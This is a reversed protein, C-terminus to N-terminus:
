LEPWCEKMLAKLQSGNFYLLCVWAHQAQPILLGDGLCEAVEDQKDATICAVM